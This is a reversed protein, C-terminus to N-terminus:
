ATEQSPQGLREVYDALDTSRIRRSRGVSVAPLDGAAVLLRIKRESLGLLTGAEAYDFLLRTVGGAEDAPAANGMAQSGTGSPVAGSWVVEYGPHRLLIGAREADCKVAILVLPGRSMSHVEQAVHRRGSSGARRDTM